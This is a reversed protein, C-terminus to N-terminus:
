ILEDLSWAFDFRVDCVAVWQGTPQDDANLPRGETGPLWDFGRLFSLGFPPQQRAARAFAKLAAWKVANLRAVLAQDDIIQITYTQSAGFSRSNTGAPIPQVGRQTVMLEPCDSPNREILKDAETTEPMAVAAIRNGLEVLSKLESSALLARWIAAHALTFPDTAEPM